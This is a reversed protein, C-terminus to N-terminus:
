APPGGMPTQSPQEPFTPDVGQSRCLAAQASTIRALARQAELQSAGGRLMLRIADMTAMQAEFLEPFMAGHNCVGAVDDLWQQRGDEPVGFAWGAQVCRLAAIRARVM